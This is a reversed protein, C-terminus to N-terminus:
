QASPRGFAQRCVSGVLFTILGSSNLLSSLKMTGFQM